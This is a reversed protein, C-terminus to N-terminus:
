CPSPTPSTKFLLTPPLISFERILSAHFISPSWESSLGDTSISITSSTTSSPRGYLLGRLLTNRWVDPSLSRPTSQSMTGAPSTSRRSSRFPYIFVIKSLDSLQRIEFPINGYLLEYTLVGINWVDIKSDYQEERVMEPSAYLPTGCRTIRLLPSHVAWGFDCIKVVGQILPITSLPTPHKRAQHRPPPHRESAYAGSSPM